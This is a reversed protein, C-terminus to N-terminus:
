LVSCGKKQKGGKRVRPGDGGARAAAPDPAAARTAARRALVARAMRLVMADVGTADSASVECLEVGLEAALAQAAEPRMTREAALDVKNVVLMKAVDTAAYRTIEAFHKSVDAFTEDRTCDAVVFAGDAGRFYSSTISRFKEQGATGCIVLTYTTGDVTIEKIGQESSLDQDSGVIKRIITTKGVSSDGLFILRMTHERSRYQPTPMTPVLGSM